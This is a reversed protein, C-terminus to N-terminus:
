GTLYRYATAVLLRVGIAIAREDADFHGAHLDLRPGNTEPDHVGLRVYCGPIKRLYWSFDDGGWSQVAKTIASRGLEARAAEGALATADGHNVVPPVGRTYAIDVTAGTGAVLTHVAKEVIAPLRDWTDDSPTRVSARLVAHAPIVNLAEGSQVAGFVLKVLDDGVENAVRPPLSTIMTAALKVMDVTQEPRATHGGPGNLRIELGDAASTIAGARLGVKGVDLKPDCHVGFIAEVGDLGGDSIVDLAGGPVMEEAPQFILRVRGPLGRDLHALYLGAGLVVTSHVDHGCAHAVGPTQSRYHVDKEDTMALADIDARLAVVPGPGDGLDCLLGTGSALVRPELGAVELREALLRTTEHEEGSLEPHSHLHRRLSVLEDHRDDVWLRLRPGLDNM